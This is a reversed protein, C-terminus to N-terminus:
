PGYWLILSANRKWTFVKTKDYIHYCEQDLPPGHIILFTCDMMQSVIWSAAPCLYFSYQQWYQLRDQAGLICNWICAQWLLTELGEEICCAKCILHLTIISWKHGALIELLPASQHGGDFSEQGCQQFAWSRTHQISLEENQVYAKLIVIASGM